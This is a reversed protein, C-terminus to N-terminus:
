RVNKQAPQGPSPEAEPPVFYLRALWVGHRSVERVLTGNKMVYRPTPDILYGDRRFIVVWGGRVRDFRDGPATSQSRGDRSMAPTSLEVAHGPFLTPLLYLEDCPGGKESFADFLSPDLTDGWDTAELGLKEAGRLGGIAENYYSLQFPHYVVTPVASWLAFGLMAANAATEPFRSFIIAFGFGALTSLLPFAFLFLRDQDYKAV